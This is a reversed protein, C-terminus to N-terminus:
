LGLTETKKLQFEEETLLGKERLEALKTIEDAASPTAGPGRGTKERQRSGIRKEKVMVVMTGALLDHWGRKQHNFAVWFFGMGLPVLSIWKALSRIIFQTTSPKRGTIADVIKMRLALKGPTASLYVWFLIEIIHGLVPYLLLPLVPLIVGFTFLWNISIGDPNGFVFAMFLGLRLVDIVFFAISGMIPGDLGASVARVWFGVYEFNIIEKATAPAQDTKRPFLRKLKGGTRRQRLSRKKRPKVATGTRAVVVGPVESLPIWGDLGEYWILDELFVQGQALHEKIQEISFPGWQQGDRGIFIEM